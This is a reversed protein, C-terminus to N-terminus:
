VLSVVWLALGLLLSVAVSHTCGVCVGGTDKPTYWAPNALDKKASGDTTSKEDSTQYAPSNERDAIEDRKGKVVPWPFPWKDKVYLDWDDRHWSHRLKPDTM